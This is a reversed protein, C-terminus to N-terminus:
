WHGSITGLNPNIRERSDPRAKMTFTERFRVFTGFTLLYVLYMRPFPLFQTLRRGKALHMGCWSMLFTSIALWRETLYKSPRYCGWLVIWGCQFVVGKDMNLGTWLNWGTSTFLVFHTWVHLRSSVHLPGYESGGCCHLDSMDDWLGM